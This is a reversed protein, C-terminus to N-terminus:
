NFQHYWIGSDRLGMAKEIFPVTPDPLDNPLAWVLDDCSEPECISASGHWRTAEFLFDVGREYPMVVRPYIEVVDLGVEEVVERIAANVVEEGVEVHGGPLTYHGDLFGTNARRLLLLRGDDDFVFTHM